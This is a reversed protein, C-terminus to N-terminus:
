NNHENLTRIKIQIEYAKTAIKAQLGVNHSAGSLVSPSAEYFTKKIHYSIIFASQM